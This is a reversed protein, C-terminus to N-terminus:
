RWPGHDVWVWEPTRRNSHAIRTECDCSGDDVIRRLLWRIRADSHRLHVKQDARNDLHRRQMLATHGKFRLRVEASMQAHHM